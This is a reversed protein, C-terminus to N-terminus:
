NVLDLSYKIRGSIDEISEQKSKSEIFIVNSNNFYCGGTGSYQYGPEEIDDLPKICKREWIYKIKSCLKNYDDSDKTKLHKVAKIINNKSGNFPDQTISLYCNGLPDYYDIGDLLFILIVLVPVMIMVTVLKFSKKKEEIRKAEKSLDLSYLNFTM